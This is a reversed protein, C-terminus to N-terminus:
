IYYNLILIIAYEHSAGERILDHYLNSIEEVSIDSKTLLPYENDAVERYGGCLVMDLNNIKDCRIEEFNNINIILDKDKYYLLNSPAPSYNVFVIFDVPIYINGIQYIRCEEIFRDLTNLVLIYFYSCDVLEKPIKNALVREKIIETINDINFRLKRNNFVEEIIDQIKNYEEHKLNNLIAM